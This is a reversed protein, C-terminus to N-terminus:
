LEVAEGLIIDKFGPKISRKTGVDVKINLHDELNYKFDLLDFYSRGDYIDVLLDLDSEPGAEGRAVSGFVRINYVGCEDAFKLITERIRRLDELTLM